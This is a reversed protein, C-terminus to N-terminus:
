TLITSQAERVANNKRFCGESEAKYRIDDYCDVDKKEGKIKPHRSMSDWKM